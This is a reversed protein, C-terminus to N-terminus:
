VIFLLFTFRYSTCFLFLYKGLHLVLPFICVVHLSDTSKSRGQHLDFAHRLSRMGHISNGSRLMVHIVKRIVFWFTYMSVYRCPFLPTYTPPLSPPPPIGIKIKKWLHSCYFQLFLSYTQPSNGDVGWILLICFM